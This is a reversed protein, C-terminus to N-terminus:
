TTLKLLRRFCTLAAGLTLFACFHNAKREYRIALRHNGFLWSMTREIVWRQQGLKDSSEVGKRAIRV